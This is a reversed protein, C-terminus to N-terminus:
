ESSKRIDGVIVLRDRKIISYIRWPKEPDFAFAQGESAFPITDVWRMESGMEPFEVVYLKKHDHGTIYLRGDPGFAGGSSSYKGFEAILGPPFVWGEVFKLNEDFRVFQTWAPNRDPEAARNAYHAFCAYWSGNHLDIWTLSGWRIGFSHTRAHQLRPINWVEISSTMPVGPYNSHTTWLQGNEVIGANLHILPEGEPCSWEHVKNRTDKGYAAIVYNGVVYIYDHDVAVGQRAEPAHFRDVEIYEYQGTSIEEAGPISSLALFAFGYFWIRNQM